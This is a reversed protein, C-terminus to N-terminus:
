KLSPIELSKCFAIFRDKEAMVEDASGIMKVTILIGDFDALLGLLGAGDMPPKGMGGSFKGKVDVLVGDKGMIVVKEFDAVSQVSPKGYQGLWRNLNPLVGGGSQSVYVEGTQGFRYNLLRFQTGVVQQWEAPASALIDTQPAPQQNPTVAPIPAKPASSKNVLSITPSKKISGEPMFADRYQINECFAIFRQKEASVAEADGIMKITLLSGGFDVIAGLMGANTRPMQGMGGAFMGSAEVMVGKEGLVTIGELSDTNSIAEQGYQGLWRNVNDIVSGNASTIYTQGDEGFRYNFARMDVGGIHRWESPMVPVIDFRPNDWVTLVRKETIEVKTTSDDCSVLLSGLSLSVLATFIRGIM